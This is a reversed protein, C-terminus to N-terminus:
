ITLLINEPKLDGHSVRKNHLERLGKLIKTAFSIVLENSINPHDSIYEGLNGKPYYEMILFFREKDLDSHLDLFRM